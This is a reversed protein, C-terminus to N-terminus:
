READLDLVQTSAEAARAQRRLALLRAHRPGTGPLALAEELWRLALDPRDAELALGAAREAAREADAVPPVIGAAALRAAGLPDTAALADVRALLDDLPTPPLYADTLELAARTESVARKRQPAAEDSRVAYSPEAPVPAAPPPPPEDAVFADMGADEAEVADDERWAVADQEADTWGEATQGAAAPSATQAPPPPPAGAGKAGQTAGLAVAPEPRAAPASRAKASAEPPPADVYGLEALEPPPEAEAVAIEDAADEDPADEDPADADERAPAEAEGRAEYTPAEEQKARRDFPSSAVAPVGIEDAEWLAPLTLLAAAAAALVGALGGAVWLRRPDRAPVPPTDELTIPAPASTPVPFPVVEAGEADDDPAESFPGSTVAGLIDDVTVRPAPALEPRLAWLAELVDADIGEPPDGRGGAELWRALAEAQEQETM